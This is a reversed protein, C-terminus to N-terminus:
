DCDCNTFGDKDIKADCCPCEDTLINEFHISGDEMEYQPSSFKENLIVKKVIFTKYERPMHMMHIEVAQGVIFKPNM